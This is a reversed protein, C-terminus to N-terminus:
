QIAGVVREIRRDPSARHQEVIRLHLGEPGVRPEPREDAADPKDVVPGLGAVPRVEAGLRPHVAALADRLGRSGCPLGWGSPAAARTTPRLTPTATSRRSAPGRGAASGTAGGPGCSRMAGWTWGGRCTGIGPPASAPPARAPTPSRCATACPTSSGAAWTWS